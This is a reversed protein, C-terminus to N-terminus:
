SGTLASDLDKNKLFGSPHRFYVFRPDNELALMKISNRAISGFIIIKRFKSAEIDQKLWKSCFFQAIKSPKLDRGSLSKGPYCQVANTINFDERTLGTRKLSNRIRAAASKKNTSCIPKNSKWEDVGPAQLIILVDSGNNEMSLPSKTDKTKNEIYPCGACCNLYNTPM